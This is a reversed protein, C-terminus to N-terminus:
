FGTKWSIERYNSKGRLAESKGPAFTMNLFHHSYTIPALKVWNDKDLLYIETVPSAPIQGNEGNYALILTDGKRSYTGILRTGFDAPDTLEDQLDYYVFEEFTKDPKLQLETYTRNPSEHYFFNTAGCSTLLLLMFLGQGARKGGNRQYKGM